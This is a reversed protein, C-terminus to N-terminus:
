IMCLNIILDSDQPTSASSITVDIDFFTITNILSFFNSDM